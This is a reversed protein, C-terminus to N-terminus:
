LKNQVVKKCTGNINKHQLHLGKIGYDIQTLYKESFRGSVRDIEIKLLYISATPKNDSSYIPTYKNLREVSIKDEFVKVEYSSYEYNGRVEDTSKRSYNSGNSITEDGFYSKFKITPSKREERKIESFEGNVNTLIVNEEMSIIYSRDAKIKSIEDKEFSKIVKLEGDGECLLKIPYENNSCGSIALISLTILPIFNM